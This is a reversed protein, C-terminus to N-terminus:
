IFIARSSKGDCNDVAKSQNDVGNVLDNMSPNEQGTPGSQLGPVAALLLRALHRRDVIFGRRELTECLGIYSPHQDLIRVIEEASIMKGANVVSSTLADKAAHALAPKDVEPWITRGTTQTEPTSTAPDTPSPGVGRVYVTETPRPESNSQRHPVLNRNFRNMADQMSQSGNVLNSSEELNTSHLPIAPSLPPFPDTKNNETDSVIKESNPVKSTRRSSDNNGKGRRRQAPFKGLDLVKLPEVSLDSEQPLQNRALSPLQGDENTETSTKQTTSPGM